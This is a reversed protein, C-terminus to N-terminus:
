ELLVITIWFFVYETGLRPIELLNKEEGGCGLLGLSAALALGGAGRRRLLGLARM